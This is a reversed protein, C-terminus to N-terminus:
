SKERKKSSKNSSDSPGFLLRRFVKSDVVLESIVAFPFAVLLAVKFIHPTIVADTAFHIVLLDEAVGMVVGIVFFEFFRILVRKKIKPGM